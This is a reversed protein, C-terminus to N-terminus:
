LVPLGLPSGSARVWSFILYDIVSFGLAARLSLGLTNVAGLLGGGIAAGLGWMYSIYKKTGALRGPSILAQSLGAAVLTVLVILKGRASLLPTNLFDALVGFLASGSLVSPLMLLLVRAQLYFSRERVHVTPLNRM